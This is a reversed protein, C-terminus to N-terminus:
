KSSSVGDEQWDSMAIFEDFVILDRLIQNSMEGLGAVLYFAGLILPRKINYV